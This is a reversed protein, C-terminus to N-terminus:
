GSEAAYRFKFAEDGYCSESANTKIETELKEIKENQKRNTMLFKRLIELCLTAYKKQYNQFQNKKFKLNQM